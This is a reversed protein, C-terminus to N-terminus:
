LSNLYELLDEAVKIPIIKSLDDINANKIDNITKYKKLLIKRRKDGIGSVNDLISSLGGKSKIDRHYSIVFRHVEDQMKTLYLFLNNDVISIEEGNSDVIISTRHKDDKKLGIVKIDLNLSNLVDLCVRVQNYGGDVIILDPIVLNDLLVRFYRRYIVEKMASLDDKVLSDIKYKRYENKNAIFDDFVVMAGVYYTGFLHSNDFLEIRHIDLNLIRNLEKISNLRIDDNRKILEIKEKLYIDANLNAMNLIKKIDGKVPIIVNIGLYEELLDKDIIDNVVIEKPIEYKDYFEAIYRLYVDSIDVFDNIIKNHKGIIVGDRVFLVEIVLFNDKVYYGFVDFNYKINSVIIQKDITNKIDDIMNRYEIAKEYDLMESAKNM